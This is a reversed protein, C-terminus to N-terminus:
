FAQLVSSPPFLDVRLEKKFQDKSEEVIKLLAQAPPSLPQESHYVIDTFFIVNGGEIPIVKLLGKELEEKIDPEFMFSIGKGQKVYGVIFDLSGVEIIVSPKIGYLDFRRLIAARSGSGKERLIVPEGNLERFSISGRQSFRHQPSVVLVFEVSSFFISKLRRDINIQCIFAMENKMDLVSRAMDESNGEDLIVRIDPFRAQFTTLLSPMIYRAYNKTTGIQLTGRMLKKFDRMKEDAESVLDFIKEAYQYLLEGAESLQIKEGFHQILKLNLSKALSKVQITVAPQTVNLEEAAKTCSGKKVVLHFVELQRLNM